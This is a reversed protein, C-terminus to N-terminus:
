LHQLTDLRGSQFLCGCPALAGGGNPYPKEPTGNFQFLKLRECIGVTIAREYQECARFYKGWGRLRFPSEYEMGKLVDLIAKVYEPPLM